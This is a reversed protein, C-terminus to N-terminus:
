GIIHGFVRLFNGGLIKAVEEQSYGNALLRDALGPMGVVSELGETKPREEFGEGVEATDWCIFDSFDAGIGVHDIGMVSSAHKIHELVKDLNPRAESVLPPYFTIGLVGGRGALAELQGDTL